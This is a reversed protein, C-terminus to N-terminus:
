SRRQRARRLVALLLRLCSHDVGAIDRRDASLPIIPADLRSAPAPTPLVTIPSM